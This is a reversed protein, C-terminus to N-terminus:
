PMRSVAKLRKPSSDTARIHSSVLPRGSDSSASSPKLFIAPSARIKRCEARRVGKPSRCGWPCSASRSARGSYSSHTSFSHSRNLSTAPSQLNYWLCPFALCRHWVGFVLALFGDQMGVGINPVRRDAIEVTRGAGAVGEHRQRDLGDLSIAPRFGKRESMEEVGKRLRFLSDAPDNGLQPTIKLSPWLLLMEIVEVQGSQEAVGVDPQDSLMGRLNDVSRVEIRFLPQGETFPEFHESPVGLLAPLLQPLIALGVPVLVVDLFEAQAVGQPDNLGESPLRVLVLPLDHGQKGLLNLVKAVIGALPQLRQQRVQRPRHPELCPDPREDAVETM